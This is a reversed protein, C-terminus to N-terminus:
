FIKGCGLVHCTYIKSGTDDTRESGIIPPKKPRGMVNSLNSRRRFGGGSGRARSKGRGPGGRGKFTRIKGTAGEEQQNFQNEEEFKKRLRMRMKKDMLQFKKSQKKADVPGRRIM